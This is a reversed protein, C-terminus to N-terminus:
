QQRLITQRVSVIDKELMELATDRAGSAIASILERHYVGNSESNERWSARFYRSMFLASQNLACELAKYGYKNGSLEYLKLHFQRNLKWHPQVNSRQDKWQDAIGQLEALYDAGAKDFVRQLNGLELDLRIDLLDCIDKYSMAVVAYGTRPFSELYGESCLEILAERVPSKSVQFREILGAETLLDKETIRGEIIDSLVSDYIQRKLTLIEGM